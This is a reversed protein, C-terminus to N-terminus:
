NKNVNNYGMMLAYNIWFISSTYTSLFSGSPLIPMISLLVIILGCLQYYNRNIQFNKFSLLLSMSIFILFTSLGFIGTESLFEYYLEHPHTSVRLQNKKHNLDDYKKSASEIRFNKIGVGFIPNDLFIEKAVNRHAGYQSDELYNSLGNKTFILKLQNVYRFKYYNNNSFTLTLIILVIPLFIILLKKKYNYKIIFFVFFSIAIFSRIFNAREGILFSIIILLTAVVIEINYKKLKKHTSILFVLCFGLFYGGIVSEEGTFSGLRGAMISNQRFINKGFFFEIILDIVVILFIFSWIRYVSYLSKQHNLVLYRFALIFFIIFFFKIVRQYSLSFNDSFFLNILLSLFFFLLLYFNNKYDSFNTKKQSILKLIFLSGIFLISFNIAFNGILISIPFTAFLILFVKDIKNQDPFFM